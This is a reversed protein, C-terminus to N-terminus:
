SMLICTSIMTLVFFAEDRFGKPERTRQHEPKRVLITNTAVLRRSRKQSRSQDTSRHVIKVRVNTAHVIRVHVIMEVLDGTMLDGGTAVVTTEAGTTAAAEATAEAEETEVATV